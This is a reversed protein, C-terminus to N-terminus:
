SGTLQDRTEWLTIREIRVKDAFTPLDKSDKYQGRPKQFQESMAMRRGLLLSTYAKHETTVNKSLKFPRGKAHLPVTM